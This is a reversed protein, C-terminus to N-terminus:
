KVVGANKGAEYVATEFDMGGSMGGATGAIVAVAKPGNKAIFRLAAFQWAGNIQSLDEISIEQDLLENNM